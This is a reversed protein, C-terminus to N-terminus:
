RRRRRRAGAARAPRSARPRSRSGRRVSRAPGPSAPSVKTLILGSRTTTGPSTLEVSAPASAATFSFIGTQWRSAPSRLKSQSMGSSCLRLTASWRELRNSAGESSATRFRAVSPMAARARRASRSCSSRSATRSGRSPAAARRRAGLVAEPAAAVHEDREVARREDVVELQQAPRDRRQFLHRAHKRNNERHVRPRLRPHLLGADLNWPAHM